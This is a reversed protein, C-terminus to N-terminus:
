ECVWLAVKTAASQDVWLVALNVVKSSVSHAAMVEAWEVVM